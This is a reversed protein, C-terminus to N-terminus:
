VLVMVSKRDVIVDSKRPIQSTIPPSAIINPLRPPTSNNKFNMNQTQKDFIWDKCPALQKHPRTHVIPPAFKPYTGPYTPSPNQALTIGRAAPRPVGEPHGRPKLIRARATRRTGRAGFCSVQCAATTCTQTRGGGLDRRMRSCLADAASRLRGTKCWKEPSGVLQTVPM